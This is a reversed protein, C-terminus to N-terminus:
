EQHFPRVEVVARCAASGEAARQLALDLSPLEVIWFGGIVEKSELFPGDTIMTTAGRGDVLKASSPAELGHAFVYEGAAKLRSSFEGTAAMMAAEEAPDDFLPVTYDHHVSLLFKAM